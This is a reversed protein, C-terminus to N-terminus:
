VFYTVNVVINTGSIVSNASDSVLTTADGAYVRIRAEQEIGLVVFKNIDLGSVGYATVSGSCRKALGTGDGITFPLSITFYGDPSSVSDISFSGNVTVMSGIKVYSLTQYTSGVTITGSTGCTVTATHEGEEYDDLVEADSSDVAEGLDVGGCHLRADRDTSLYVNTVSANGLTVSNDALGKVNYGIAIQNGPTATSFGSGSGIAICQDPSTVNNGVSDNRGASYGIAVNHEGDGNKQLASTGLVSNYRATTNSQSAYAGISVNSDGSTLESLAEYGMAVNFTADAMSADSVNQGIFVNYDSGADLNQGANKGFITNSIGSDNNSLSIRSNSDLIFFTSQNGGDNELGIFKFSGVTSADAGRSWFRTDSGFYDILIVLLGFVV